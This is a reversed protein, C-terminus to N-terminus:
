LVAAGVMGFLAAVVVVGVGSGLARGAGAKMTSASAKATSASIGSTFPVNSAAAAGQFAVAQKTATPNPMATM